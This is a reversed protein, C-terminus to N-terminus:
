KLSILKLDDVLGIFFDCLDGQLIRLPSGMKNISAKSQNPFRFYAQDYPENREYWYVTSDIWGLGLSAFFHRLDAITCKYKRSLIHYSVKKDVSGDCIAWDSDGCGLRRNLKDLTQRLVLDKDINIADIDFYMRVEYNADFMDIVEHWGNDKEIGALVEEYSLDIFERKSKDLTESVLIKM